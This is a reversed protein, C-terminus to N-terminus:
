FDTVSTFRFRALRLPPTVIEGDFVAGAVGVKKGVGTLGGLADVLSQTFRLNKV